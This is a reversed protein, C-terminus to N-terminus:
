TLERGAARVGGCRPLPDAAAACGGYLPRGM